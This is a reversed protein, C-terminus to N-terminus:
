AHESQSTTASVSICFPLHPKLRYFSFSDVLRTSSSLPFYPLKFQEPGTSISTYSRSGDQDEKNVKLIVPRGFKCLVSVIVRDENDEKQRLSCVFEERSRVMSM